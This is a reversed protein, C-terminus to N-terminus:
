HGVVVKRVAKQNPNEFLLYYLGNPINSMDLTLTESIQRNHYKSFVVSGLMDILQIKLNEAPEAEIDIYLHQNVPNPYINIQKDLITLNKDSVVTGKVEITDTTVASCGDINVATLSVIFVGTSQFQHIPEFETSQGSDGFDWFYSIAGMTNNSFSVEDSINLDVVNSSPSFAVDPALGIDSVEVTVPVRGCLHDYSVQWDYFGYYGNPYGAINSERITVLGDIGMPYTANVDIDLPYGGKIILRLNKRAPVKFNLEMINEGVLEPVLYEQELTNGVEDVLSFVRVGPEEVYVKVSHLIFPLHADFVLAGKIDPATIGTSPNWASKGTHSAIIAEAYFTSSEMLPPTLWELGEGVQLGGEMQDYWYVTGSAEGIDCRLLASTETCAVVPNSGSVTPIILPEDVVIVAKRFLNNYMRQDDVGNPLDVVITLEYDGAPIDMVPMTFYTRETNELNGTWSAQGSFSSNGILTYNVKFSTLPETGANEVFIQPAFNAQCVTNKLAIDLLMVDNERHPSVPTYGQDILYNYAAFVDIMGMGYTNDEGPEGMDVASFYLAKMHEVGPLYPFAEKLLLCAGAVHPSAMSTGSYRNYGGRLVSSRVQVGPAAVEPKILLSGEGGCVSPGRSSFNAVPFGPASGSVAAVTFCSVINTNINQPSLLTQDSPGSNGAAFVVAMGASEMANFTNVMIGMCEGGNSPSGSGWSNNIVHAMDENTAPNGDPNMAWEFTEIIDLNSNMWGCGIPPSSMWLANFAVGITDNTLRDLGCVTGAVHTGHSDCDFPINGIGSWVENVPKYLGRYKMRLAPHEPQTGTDLILANQGYGSYGLAWMPPANIAILGIEVGNPEPPAPPLPMEHRDANLVKITSEEEIWYVDDHRSLEYIASESVRAYITNTIWLPRISNQDVKGSTRLFTLLSNQTTKANNQLSEIVIQSRKQADANVAKLREEVSQFDLQQHLNIFVGYHATPASKIQSLLNDSLTSYDPEQATIYWSMIFFLFTLLQQM